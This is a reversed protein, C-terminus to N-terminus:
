TEPLQARAVLHVNREDCPLRALFLTLNANAAALRQTKPQSPSVAYLYYFSIPSFFIASLFLPSDDYVFIRVCRICFWKTVWACRGSICAALEFSLPLTSILCLYWSM